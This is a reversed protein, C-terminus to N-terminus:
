HKTMGMKHAKPSGMMPCKMGRGHHMMVGHKIANGKMMPCQMNMGSAKAKKSKKAPVAKKANTTQAAPHHAPNASASQMGVSALSAAAAIAFAMLIRKM